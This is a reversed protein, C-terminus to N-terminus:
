EGWDNDNDYLYWICETDGIVLTHSRTQVCGKGKRDLCKSAVKSNMIRQMRSYVCPNSSDLSICHM